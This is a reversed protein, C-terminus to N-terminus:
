RRPRTGLMAFQLENFGMPQVEKIGGIVWNMNKNDMLLFMPIAFFDNSSTVLAMIKSAVGTKFKRQMGAIEGFDWVLAPNFGKVNDPMAHAFATKVKTNVDASSEVTGVHGVWRRGGETWATILCGSMPGTMVDGSAAIKATHGLVYCLWDFNFQMGMTLGLTSVNPLGFNVLEGDMGDYKMASPTTPPNVVISGDRTGSSVAGPCSWKVRVGQHFYREIM